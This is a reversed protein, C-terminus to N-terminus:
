MVRSTFLLIYIELGELFFVFLCPRSFKPLVRIELGKDILIEREEEETLKKKGEKSLNNLNQIKWRNLQILTKKTKKPVNKSFTMIKTFNWLKRSIEKSNQHFDFNQLTRTFNMKQPTKTFNWIKQSIKNQNCKIDKTFNKLKGTIENLNWNFQFKRLYFHYM